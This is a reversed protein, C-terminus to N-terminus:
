TQLPTEADEPLWRLLTAFLRDPDIPKSIHDNMGAALCTQRDEDFANATMALIPTQAHQPLRRIARTADLGNLKPMQIDMLILAYANQEALALAEAGDEAVDVTLAVDELLALSVERNIPEDEALLIRTRQRRQRLKEEPAETAQPAIAEGPAATALDLSFWFTSGVGLTSDVGFQGGMMEILRKSIALGLGTGGYKRTMSNDAQEFATFLRQQAEPAIGIGSDIVAFRLRASGDREALQELQLRVEGHETFKVANGAFNLLIQELRLADGLFERRALEPPAESVLRLGKDAARQGILSSVNELVSGLRFPLHAIELRNAEIKSLDLIDNIVHLLHRSAQDIKGLQENLAPDHSRRLLVSTMGMIANMPTRLEHSMNALFTSKAHSAAEAADRAQSLDLTRQRVEAELMEKHRALVLEAQKRESIDTSIGCLAYIKGQEDRLPLKVTWYFTHQQSNQDVNDEEIRITEGDRLVRADNTSLQRFTEADFFRSDDHGVLEALSCRFLERVPRNAYLYRGATDKLYIYASVNDLITAHRSESARLADSREALADLMANVAQGLRAAEDNGDLHVRPAPDGRQVADAVRQIAHLRRTLYRAALTAFASALLIAFLTYILGDRRIRAIEGALAPDSIGLRLWGVSKDQLLIPTALDIALRTQRLVTPAPQSPLDDLYLGRKDPVNHALVQGRRDLIIAHQLGPYGALGDVIEQLGAFDRAAVWPAASVALSHALASSRVRHQDIAFNEQRRSTELVFLTMLLAVLVAIGIALQRRLNGLLLHRLQTM